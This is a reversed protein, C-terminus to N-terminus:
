CLFKIHTGDPYTGQYNRTEEDVTLLGEEEMPKLVPTKVQGTHFDTEDSAVFELVEEISVWDDGAFRDCLAQRLLDYNPDEVGLTLQSRTGRFSFDGGPAVNWIAAKMRDSGTHHQTGFFISYVLHGKRYLDFRVVQEAGAERLCREYLHFLFDKRKDGEMKLAARWKGTGFLDDLHDEFEPTKMFRNISEYQFSILVECKDNDLIRSIVEMPTDSVGFPDAMVLAPALRSGQEDLQDLVETMSRDFKGQVVEVRCNDPIEPEIDSALNELHKARKPESEIFIFGVEATIKDKARHEQIARLAIIPSGPEGDKYEGPGAFGDIFLIRGNWTGMIPLWADLYGRLVLHKGETHPRLPWITDRDAM